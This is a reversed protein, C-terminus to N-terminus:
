IPKRHSDNTVIWADCVFPKEGSHVRKHRNLHMDKEFRQGCGKYDFQFRKENLHVVSKHRNLINKPAFCQGCDSYDCKFPKEGSHLRKHRNLTSKRTFRKGCDPYLCVFPRENGVSDDGSSSTSAIPECYGSGERDDEEELEPTEARRHRWYLPMEQRDTPEEITELHNRDETEWQTANFLFYTFMNCAPIQKQMMRNGDGALRLYFDASVAVGDADM